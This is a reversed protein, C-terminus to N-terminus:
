IQYIVIYSQNISVGTIVDVTKYIVWLNTALMKCDWFGATRCGHHNHRHPKFPVLRYRPM